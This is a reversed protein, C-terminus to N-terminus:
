NVGIGSCVLRVEPNRGGLRMGAVVPSSSIDAESLLARAMGTGVFKSLCLPEARVNESVGALMDCREM